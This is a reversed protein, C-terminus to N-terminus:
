KEKRIRFKRQFNYIDMKHPLEILMGPELDTLPNEIDNFALIVWWLSVTGYARYSILDPRMIDRSTLRYMSVPYELTKDIYSLSNYLFDLEPVGDIRTQQYFKTRDM